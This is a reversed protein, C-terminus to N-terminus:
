GVRAIQERIFSALETYGTETLHLGDGGSWEPHLDAIANWDPVFLRPDAKDAEELISVKESYRESDVDHPPIWLVRRAGRAVLADRLTQVDDSFGASSHGPNSGLVVIVYRPVSERARIQDIAWRATRGTEAVTELEWNDEALKLGLGGHEVAGLLISDGIALVPGGAPKRVPTPAAPRGGDPEGPL